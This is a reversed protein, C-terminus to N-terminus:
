TLYNFVSSNGFDLRSQDMLRYDFITTKILVPRSSGVAVNKSLRDVILALVLSFLYHTLIM